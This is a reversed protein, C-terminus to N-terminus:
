RKVQQIDDLNGQEQVVAASVWGLIESGDENKVRVYWWARTRDSGLITATGGEMLAGIRPSQPSPNLRINTPQNALVRAELSTSSLSVPPTISTSLAVGLAILAVVVLAMLRGWRLWAWGKRRSPQTPQIPIVGTPIVPPLPLKASRPVSRPTPANNPTYENKHKTVELYAPINIKVGARKLEEYLRLLAVNYPQTYFNIYQIRNLQFHIEAPRWLIPVVLKDKDLFYQWEDEVNRSAMSDPSIIVVLVKSTILGEQIATSWKIGSPIDEVDIWVDIGADALSDAIRRAFHNDKRSYSIFVRNM